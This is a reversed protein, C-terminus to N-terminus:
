SRPSSSTPGDTKRCSSGMSWTQQGLTTAPDSLGVVRLTTTETAEFELFPYGSTISEKSQADGPHEWALCLHPQQGRTGRKDRQGLERGRPQAAGLDGLDLRAAGDELMAGSRFVPFHSGTRVPLSM